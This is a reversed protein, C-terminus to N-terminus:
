TDGVNLLTDPMSSLEVLIHTTFSLIFTSSFNSMSIQTLVVQASVSIASM